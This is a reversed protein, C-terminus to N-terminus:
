HHYVTTTKTSITSRQVYYTYVHHQAPPHYITVTGVYPKKAFLIKIIKLLEPKDVQGDNNYDAEKFFANIEEPSYRRPDGVRQFLDNLFLNMEKLSLKGSHDTDYVNFVEDIYKMLLDDNM